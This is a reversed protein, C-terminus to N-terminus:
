HYNVFYGSSTALSHPPQDTAFYGQSRCGYCGQQCSLNFDVTNAVATLLCVCVCSEYTSLQILLSNWGPSLYLLMAASCIRRTVCRSEVVDRHKKNKLLM